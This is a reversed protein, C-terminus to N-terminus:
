LSFRSIAGVLMVAAGCIRVIGISKPTQAAREPLVPHLLWLLGYLMWAMNFYRGDHTLTACVFLASMMLLGYKLQQSYTWNRM